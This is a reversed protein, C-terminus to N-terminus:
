CSYPPAPGAPIATMDAFRAAGGAASLVMLGVLIAAFGLQTMVAYVLAASRVAARTHETLVLM